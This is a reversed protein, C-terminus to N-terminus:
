GFMCTRVITTVWAVLSQLSLVGGPRQPLSLEALAMGVGATDVGLKCFLWQLSKADIVDPQNAPALKAFLQALKSSEVWSM